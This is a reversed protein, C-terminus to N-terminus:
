AHMHHNTLASVCAHECEHMCAHMCACAVAATASLLSDPGEKGTGKEKGTGQHSFIRTQVIQLDEEKEGQRPRHPGGGGGKKGAEEEISSKMRLV